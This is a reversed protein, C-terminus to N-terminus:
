AATPPVRNHSEQRRLFPRHTSRFHAPMNQCQRRLAIARSIGAKAPITKHPFPLTHAFEQRNNCVCCQSIGAKAPITGPPNHNEPTNPSQTSSLQASEGISEREGTSWEQPLLFRVFLHPLAAYFGGGKGVGVVRVAVGHLRFGQGIRRFGSLLSTECWFKVTLKRGIQRFSDDM